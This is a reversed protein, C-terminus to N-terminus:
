LERMLESAYDKLRKMKWRLNNPIQLVKGDGQNAILELLTDLYVIAKAEGMGEGGLKYVLIPERNIKELKKTQDWWDKVHPVKFNKCEIGANRGCVEMSTIIDAKERSGAGSAGDYTAKPDIGFARIKDAVFKELERGKQKNNQTM